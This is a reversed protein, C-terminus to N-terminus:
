LAKIRSITEHFLEVVLQLPSILNDSASRGFNLVIEQILWQSKM